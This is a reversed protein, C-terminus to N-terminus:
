YTRNEIFDAMERLLRADNGFALITEKAEDILKKARERSVEVGLVSAFTSKGHRSDSGQPKGHKETPATVDLIDDVIQFALGICEGYISLKELQEDTAGGAIGGAVVSARLLAATKMQHLRILADSDLRLGESLIDIVQGGVMGHAGVASSIEHVLRIAREAGIRETLTPDGLLEFARTLLADGVLIAMAEGYVKHTTPKGRRLDDNDLAPLDDHVLSYTHIFEVALAPLMADNATAGVSEAAALTLVPRLRKGGTLVSYRVADALQHPISGKPLLRDLAKEVIERRSTMYRNLLDASREAVPTSQHQPTNTQSGRNLSRFSTRLAEDNDAHEICDQILQEVEGRSIKVEEGHILQADNGRALALTRVAMWLPLLCFVRMDREEAPIAMCYTLAHGFGHQARGFLPELAAHAREKADPQLLEAVELGADQCVTRPVYCVGRDWDDTINKLINTLQLGIAFEEANANLTHTRSANLDCSTTFLDTLMHGVTGAAFYCYRELDAMTTLAVIGDRCAPRHRYITMGRAMECVSRRIALKTADTFETYVSLVRPLNQMLRHEASTPRKCSDPLRGAFAFPSADQELCALFSSFLGDREALALNPEDEITDAIRCLLYGCTVARELPERLMAIPLSFSRSVEKLSQQCFGWDTLNLAEDASM